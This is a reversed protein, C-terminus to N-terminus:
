KNILYQNLDDLAARLKDISNGNIEHSLMAILATIIMKNGAELTEIREVNESLADDVTKRWDTEDVAPKRWEKIVKIVNGLLVVFGMVALVVIVFDRIQVLTLAEM